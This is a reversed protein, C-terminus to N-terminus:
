SLGLLMWFYGSINKKIRSFGIRICLVFCCLSLGAQADADIIEIMTGYLKSLSWHFEKNPM